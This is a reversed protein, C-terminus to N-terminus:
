RISRTSSSSASSNSAGNSRPATRRNPAPRGLGSLQPKAILLTRARPRSTTTSTRRAIPGSRRRSGTNRSALGRRSRPFRPHKWIPEGGTAVFLQLPSQARAMGFGDHNDPKLGRGTISRRQRDRDFAREACGHGAAVFCTSLPLPSNSRRSNVSCRWRVRRAARGACACCARRLERLVAVDRDIM